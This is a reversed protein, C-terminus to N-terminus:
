SFTHSKFGAIFDSWSRIPAHAVYIAGNVDKERGALEDQKHVFQNYTELYQSGLNPLKFEDMGKEWPDNIHLLTEHGSGNGVKGTMGTVVRIHPGPEASAVWLPGYHRLLEAFGEVSYNQPPEIELGWYKLVTIDHPALGEHYQNWYGTADAIEFPSVTIDDRWSVIMAAGAAWCSMGTEQPILPVDYLIHINELPTAWWPLNKDTTGLANVIDNSKGANQDGRIESFSDVASLITLSIVVIILVAVEFFRSVQM